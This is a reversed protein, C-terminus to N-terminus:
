IFPAPPVEPSPEDERSAIVHSDLGEVRRGTSFSQPVYVSVTQTGTERPRSGPVATYLSVTARPQCGAVRGGEPRTGVTYVPKMTHWNRPRCPSSGLGTVDEEGVSVIKLHFLYSCVEGGLVVDEVQGM